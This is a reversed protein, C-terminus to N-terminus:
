CTGGWEAVLACNIPELTMLCLLCLREAKWASPAFRVILLHWGMWRRPRLQDTGSDYPLAFMTARSELGLSRLSCDVPAVGDLSSPASRELTMLCLLCLREAKWDSLAFRVILLHWGMWRRPRLLDTGSAYPLAFM